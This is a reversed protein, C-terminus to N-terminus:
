KLKFSAFLLMRVQQKGMGTTVIDKSRDGASALQFFLVDKFGLETWNERRNSVIDDVLKKTWKGSMNYLIIGEAKGHPTDEIVLPIEDPNREHYFKNNENEENIRNIRSAVAQQAYTQASLVQCITFVAALFLYRHFYFKM